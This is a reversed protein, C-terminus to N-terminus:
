TVDGRRDVGGALAQAEDGARDQVVVGALRERGVLGPQDVLVPLGVFVGV